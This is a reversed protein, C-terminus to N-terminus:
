KVKVGDIETKKLHKRIAKLESEIGLLLIFFAGGFAILLVYMMTNQKKQKEIQEM